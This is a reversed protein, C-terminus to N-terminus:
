SRRRQLQRLQREARLCATRVEMFFSRSIFVTVSEKTLGIEDALGTEHVKAYNQGPHFRHTRGLKKQIAALLKKEHDIDWYSTVIDQQLRGREHFIFGAYAPPRAGKKLSLSLFRIFRKWEELSLPIYVWFRGVLFAVGIFHRSRQGVSSRQALSVQFRVRGASAVQGLIKYM